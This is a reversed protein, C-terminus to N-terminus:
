RRGADVARKLGLLPNTVNQGFPADDASAIGYFLGQAVATHAFHIECPMQLQIDVPGNFYEKGFDRHFIGNEGFAEHPLRFKGDLELMGIDDVHHIGIVILSKGDVVDDHLIHVSPGDAIQDAFVAGHSLLLDQLDDM